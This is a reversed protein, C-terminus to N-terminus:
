RIVASLGVIDRVPRGPVGLQVLHLSSNDEVVFVYRDNSGVQKLVCILYCHGDNTGFGYTRSFM